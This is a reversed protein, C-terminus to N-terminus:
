EVPFSSVLQGWFLDLFQNGGAKQPGRGISGIFTAEVLDSITKCDHIFLEINKTRGHHPDSHLTRPTVEVFEIRNWLAVVVTKRRDETRGEIGIIPADGIFNKIWWLKRNRGCVM